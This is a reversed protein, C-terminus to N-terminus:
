RWSAGHLRKSRRSDAGTANGPSGIATPQSATASADSETIPGRLTSASDGSGCLAAARKALANPATLGLRRAHEFATELTEDDLAAACDILTRTASACPIGDVERRDVEDLTRSRHVCISDNALGSRSPVTLHVGDTLIGDLRLLRAATQHSVVVEDGGWLTAAKALQRGTQPAGPLRYVGPLVTVWDRTMVRRTMSYESLGCRAAQWRAFTGYQHEAMAAVRVDAENM